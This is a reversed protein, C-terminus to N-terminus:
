SPSQFGTEIEEFAGCLDREQDFDKEEVSSQAADEVIEKSQTENRKLERPFNKRPCTRGISLRIMGRGETLPGSYAPTRLGPRNQAYYTPM